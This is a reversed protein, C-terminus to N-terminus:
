RSTASCGNWINRRCVKSCKRRSPALPSPMSRLALHLPKRRLRKPLVTCGRKLQPITPKDPCAASGASLVSTSLGGKKPKQAYLPIVAKTMRYVGTLDIDIVRDWEADDMYLLTRDMRIGASNVLGDITGHRAAISHVFRKIEEGNGSDVRYATIYGSLDPGIEGDRPCM